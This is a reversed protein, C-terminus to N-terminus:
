LDAIDLAITATMMMRTRTTAPPDATYRADRESLLVEDDVVFVEDVLM